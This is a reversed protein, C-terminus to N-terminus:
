LGLRRELVTAGDGTSLATLDVRPLRPPPDAEPEATKRHASFRARLDEDSAPGALRWRCSCLVFRDPRGLRIEAVQHGRRVGERATM